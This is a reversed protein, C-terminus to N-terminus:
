LHFDLSDDSITIQITQEARRNQAPDPWARLNSEGVGSFHSTTPNVIPYPHICGKEIQGEMGIAAQVDIM